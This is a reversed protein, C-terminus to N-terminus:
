LHCFPRTLCIAFSDFGTQAYFSNTGTQYSASVMKDTKKLKNIVLTDFIFVLDHFSHASNYSYNNYSTTLVEFKLFKIVLYIELLFKRNMKLRTNCYCLLFTRLIILFGLFAICSYLDGM